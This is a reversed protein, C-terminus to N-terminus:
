QKVEMRQKISKLWEIETFFTYNPSTCDTFTHHSIRILGGILNNFVKEDEESWKPKDYLAEKAEASVMRQPKQEGQKELIDDIYCWRTVNEVQREGDWFTKTDAHYFAVEHWTADESDWEVLLEKMEDPKESVDHWMIASQKKKGQKELWALWSNLQKLTKEDEKDRCDPAPIYEIQHKVEAILEKRTREDESEKLEYFINELVGKLYEFCNKDEHYDRALKLAEDYAKAKQETTM